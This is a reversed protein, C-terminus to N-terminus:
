LSRLTDDLYVRVGGCLGFVCVILLPSCRGAHVVSSPWLGACCLCVCMFCVRMNVCVLCVWVWMCVSHVNVHVGVVACLCVDECVNLEGDRRVRSGGSWKCGVSLCANSVVITVAPAWVM